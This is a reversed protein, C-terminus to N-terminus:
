TCILEGLIQITFVMHFMSVNWMFTAYTSAQM